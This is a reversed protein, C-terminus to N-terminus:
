AAQMARDGARVWDGVDGRAGLGGVGGRSCVGHMVTMRRRIWGNIGGDM